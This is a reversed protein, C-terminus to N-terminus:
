DPTTIPLREFLATLDRLRIGIDETLLEPQFRWEWNGKLTGPRNMRCASGLGL